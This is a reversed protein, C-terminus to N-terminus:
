DGSELRWRWVLGDDPDWVEDVFRMGVSRLVSTSPNRKPLTHAIMHRVHPSSHAISILAQAMGQAYGQGEYPGFTYYAIEVTGDRTPPGKFACSGVILDSMEDAALYGGWRDAERRAGPAMGLTQEVVGRLAPATEAASRRSPPRRFRESGIRLTEALDSDVPLLRVNAMLAPYTLEDLWGPAPSAPVSTM